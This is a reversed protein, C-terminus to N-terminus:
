KCAERVYPIIYSSRERFFKRMDEIEADFSEISYREGYHRKYELEIYPRIENALADLKEIM